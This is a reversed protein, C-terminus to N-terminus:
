KLIISCLLDITLIISDPENDTRTPIRSLIGTLLMDFKQEHTM